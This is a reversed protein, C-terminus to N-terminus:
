EEDHLILNNSMNGGSEELNKKGKNILEIIKKKIEKLSTAYQKVQEQEYDPLTSIAEKINSM